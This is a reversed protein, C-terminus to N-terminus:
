SVTMALSESRSGRQFRDPRFADLAVGPRDGVVLASLAAGTVPGLTIGLMAHGFGVSVNEVGPLRGIVPLGDPTVSRLGCWMDRPAETGIEALYRAAVRQVSRARRPDFRNGLGTLDMVGAIRLGDSRPAAGIRGEPFYLSRTVPTPPHLTLGYGKGAQLPVDTGTGRLLRRSWAGAAVVVHDAPLRGQEGRVAVARGARMELASVAWNELIKVGDALLSARLGAVLTVPDVAQESELLYGAEVQESLGPELARLAGRDLLSPQPCGHSELRALAALGRSARSADLYVSLLGDRRLTIDVGEAALQAYSDFAGSALSATARLGTVHAATTCRRAFRALWPLARLVEAPAVRVAGDPRLVERLAAGVAGPGALPAALSPVIWGANGWSAGRGAEGSDVVTVDLGLRRLRHATCMGIIGAGVVVVHDSVGGSDMRVLLRGLSTSRMQHRSM